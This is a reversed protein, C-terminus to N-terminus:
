KMVTRSAPLWRLAAKGPNGVSASAPTGSTDSVEHPPMETGARVGSVM